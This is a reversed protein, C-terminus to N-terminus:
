RLDRKLIKGTTGKPLETVFRVERPYKYAALRDKCYAIVDDETARAGPRLAVVAVVEEGLRDDAKGIVAAESVDPHTYLVEEIERPYVNYGGRIVLDKLRDVVFLYGDEDEYGLDGTHLWGDRLAAATAEPDNRYGKMVNHGRVVLEGVQDAGRALRRGDEGVVVVEVGWIPKGISLFRRDDASRNFTATACSESLGYGELLLVGFREEVARLIEGPIAAGGSVALRFASLDRHGTEEQLLAHYMTPVGFMISVRDREMVDVAVKAEFREMVTITSVYRVAVGILSLGYVHFFPVVALSVDDPGFGFLAGSCLSNFVLQLHTLEAGKPRGTTGSTYLLVATEESSTPVVDDTPTGAYLEDLDRCGPPVTVGGLVFVPLGRAVDAVEQTHASSTLLVLAGSDTLLHDVERARLLPNMPVMVLGARMIGFYVFVFDACNSLQVAVADGRRLGLALLGAAARASQTDVERYSVTREGLVLCTKDPQAAVAERLITAVNLSM